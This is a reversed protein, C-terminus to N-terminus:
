RAGGTCPQCFVNVGRIVRTMLPGACSDCTTKTYPSEGGRAKRCEVCMIDDIADKGCFGCPKTNAPRLAALHDSYLRAQDAPLTKPHVPLERIGLTVRLWDSAELEIITDSCGPEPDTPAAGLLEELRRIHDYLNADAASTTETADSPGGSLNFARLCAALKKNQRERTSNLGGIANCAATLSQNELLIASALKRRKPDLARYEPMRWLHTQLTIQDTPM